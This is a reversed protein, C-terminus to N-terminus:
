LSFHGIAIWKESVIIIEYFGKSSPMSITTNIEPSYGVVTGNSYIYVEGSDFGDYLVTLHQITPNYYVDLNVFMSARELSATNNGQQIEIEIKQSSTDEPSQASVYHCFLLLILNFCLFCKM